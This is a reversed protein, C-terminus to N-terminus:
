GYGDWFLCSLGREFPSFVFLFRQNRDYFSIQHYTTRRDGIRESMWLMHIFTKRSYKIYQTCLECEEMVLVICMVVDPQETHIFIWSHAIYVDDERQIAPDEHM